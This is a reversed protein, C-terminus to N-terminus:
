AERPAGDAALWETEFLAAAHIDVQRLRGPGLNVFRHPVNPPVVVVCGAAVRTETDGVQFLADGELVLFTESYPHRHLSPGAGPPCDVLIFSIAAGHGAGEFEHASPSTRLAALPVIAPAPTTGGDGDPTTTAATM